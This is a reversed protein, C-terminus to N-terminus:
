PKCSSPISATEGLEEEILAAVDPDYDELKPYTASLSPPLSEWLWFKVLEAWFESANTSAYLGTWRGRNVASQYLANLRTNFQHGDAQDELAFHTLHAFEHIFTGCNPDQTGLAASWHGPNKNAVGGQHGSIIFIVTNNAAMTALLDSRTTLMGTIIERYQVMQEDPVEGPAVVIVGEVNLYKQYQFDFGLSQPPPPFQTPVVAVYLRNSWASRVQAANRARVQFYYNRGDTRVAHTYTTTTLNGGAPGWRRDISDWVQLEYGVANAVPDWNLTVEGSGVTASLNQPVSPTLMSEAGTCTPLNLRNLHDAVITNSGSLTFGQPLCLQNGTLGVWTLNPLASLDPFPGRFQNNSLDLSALKAIHNLNLIPGSLQNDRLSLIRLDTLASLDPLPGTLQNDSLNLTHMATLAALDPIEKSLRNASLDIGRIATLSSLDPIKGSLRNDLLFINQLNTLTGLNPITGSLENHSLNVNQLRTLASLDPIEGNLRNSGLFLFGLNTLADM